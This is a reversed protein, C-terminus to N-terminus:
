LKFEVVRKKRNITEIAEAVDLVTKSSLAEIIDKLDDYGAIFIGKFSDALRIHLALREPETRKKSERKPLKVLEVIANGVQVLPKREWEKMSEMIEEIKSLLAEKGEEGVPVDSM